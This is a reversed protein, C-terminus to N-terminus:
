SVYGVAVAARPRVIVAAAINPTDDFCPLPAVGQAGLRRAEGENGAAAPNEPLDAACATALAAAITATCLQHVLKTTM